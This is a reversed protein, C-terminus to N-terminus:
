IADHLYWGEQRIRALVADPLLYRPDGGTALAQRIATASIALPTMAVQMVRGAPEGCLVAPDDTWRAPLLGELDPPMPLAEGARHVLVLHALTPLAQWRRWTPLGAFADAGLLLCLPVQPGLEARLEALTDVTFSPGPRHLERDDLAFGPQDAIATRVLSLRRAAPLAPAGRHPPDAAPVFRVEALGLAQRVELAARLHGYHIPDFTGGFIGVGGSEVASTVM